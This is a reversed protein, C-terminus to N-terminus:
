GSWIRLVHRQEQAGHHLIPLPRGARLHRRRRSQHDLAHRPAHAARPIGSFICALSSPGLPARTCSYSYIPQSHVLSACPLPSRPAHATCQHADCDSPPHMADSGEFPTVTVTFILALATVIDWFPFLTVGSLRSSFSAIHKKEQTCSASDNVGDHGHSSSDFVAQVREQFGDRTRIAEVKRQAALKRRQKIINVGQPDIIYWPIKVEVSAVLQQASALDLFSIQSVRAVREADNSFTSHHPLDHGNALTGLKAEEARRLRSM